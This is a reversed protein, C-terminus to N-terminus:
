VRVMGWSKIVLSVQLGIIVLSSLMFDAVRQRYMRIVYDGKCEKMPMLFYLLAVVLAGLAMWLLFHFFRMVKVSRLIVGITGILNITATAGFISILTIPFVFSAYPGNRVSYLDYLCYGFAAFAVIACITNSIQFFFKKFQFQSIEKVERASIHSLHSAHSGHHSSRSIHSM